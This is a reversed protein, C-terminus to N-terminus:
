DMDDKLFFENINPIDSALADTLTGTYLVRGADLFTIRYAIRKISELEHTVVVITMGLMKKLTLLMLDLGKATVPDLGASPEDCFIIRPDLALARAVAARKQMGGSLERPFRDYVGVLEVQALKREAVKRRLSPSMDTHMELPLAVNEGVTMSNLLAGHQYMVGVDRLVPEVEEEELGTMETGLLRISGGAPTFLRIVNKLLTSKGCGSTGLIVMIEGERVDFTVGDLVHNRGYWSHLDRVELITDTATLAM